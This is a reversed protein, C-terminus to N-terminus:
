RKRRLLGRTTWWSWVLCVGAIRATWWAWEARDLEDRGELVLAAAVASIGVAVYIIQHGLRYMLHSAPELNRIKLQLDGSQASRLFKRFEAPLATVSIMLDKSTEVLLSSWDGDDGLVFREVYPRIM